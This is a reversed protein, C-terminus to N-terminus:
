ARRRKGRYFGIAFAVIACGVFGALVTRNTLTELRRRWGYAQPPPMMAQYFAPQYQPSTWEGLTRV